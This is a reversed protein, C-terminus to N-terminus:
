RKIYKKLQFELIDDGMDISYYNNLMQDTIDKGDETANYEDIRADTAKDYGHREYVRTGESAEESDCEVEVSKIGDPSDVHEKLAVVFESFYKEKIEDTDLDEGSEYAEYLLTDQDDLVHEVNGNENTVCFSYASLDFFGKVMSILAEMSKACAIDKPDCNDASLYGGDPPYIYGQYKLSCGDNTDMKLTILYSSSSSNTVFDSRFKM